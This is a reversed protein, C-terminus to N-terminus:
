SIVVPEHFSMGSDSFLSMIVRDYLSGAYEILYGLM